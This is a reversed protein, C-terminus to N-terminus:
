CVPASALSVLLKPERLFCAGSALRDSVPPIPCQAGRCRWFGARGRRRQPRDGGDPSQASRAAARGDRRAASLWPTRRDADPLSLVGGPVLPCPSLCCVTASPVRSCPPHGSRTRGQPDLAPLGRLSGTGPRFPGARWTSSDRAGKTGGALAGSRGNGESRVLNFILRGAPERCPAGDSDVTM